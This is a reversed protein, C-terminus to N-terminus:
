RLRDAVYAEYTARVGERLPIKATWGLARMRSVDMLKRPTGDPKSADLELHGDFGVVDGVLEALERISLDEGVGVNFLDHPLHDAQM